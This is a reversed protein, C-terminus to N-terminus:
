EEPQDGGNASNIWYSLGGMASIIMLGFARILLFANVPFTLIEIRLLIKEKELYSLNDAWSKVSQKLMEGIQDAPYMSKIREIYFKLVPNTIKKDFM